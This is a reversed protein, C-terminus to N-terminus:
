GQLCGWVKLSCKNTSEVEALGPCSCLLLQTLLEQIHKLIQEGGSFNLLMAPLLTLFVFIPFHLLQLVGFVVSSGVRFGKQAREFVLLYWISCDVQHGLITAQPTMAQVGRSESVPIYLRSFEWPAKQGWVSAMVFGWKTSRMFTLLPSTWIDLVESLWWVRQLKWTM